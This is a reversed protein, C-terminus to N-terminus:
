FGQLADLGEILELLSLPWVSCVGEGVEGQPNELFTNQLSLTFGQKKTVNLTIMLWM